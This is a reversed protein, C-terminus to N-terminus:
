PSERLVREKDLRDEFEFMVINLDVEHVWISKARRWIKRMTAKFAEQTYPKKM